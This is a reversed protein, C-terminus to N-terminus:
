APTTDIVEGRRMQELSEQLGSDSLQLQDDLRNFVAELLNRSRGQKKLDRVIPRVRLVSPASVRRVPRRSVEELLGEDAWLRATPEAVGLLRAATSIRMAGLADLQQRRLEAIRRKARPNARVAPEAEEIEDLGDLLSVTREVQEHEQTVSM